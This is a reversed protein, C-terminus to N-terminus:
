SKIGRVAKLPSMARLCRCFKTATGGWPQTRRHAYNDVEIVFVRVSYSMERQLLMSASRAILLTSWGARTPGASRQAAALRRSFSGGVGTDFRGIETPGPGVQGDGEKRISRKGRFENGSLFFKEPLDCRRHVHQPLLRALHQCGAKLRSQFRRRDSGVPHYPPRRALARRGRM